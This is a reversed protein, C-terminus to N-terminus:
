ATGWTAYLNRVISEDNVKILIKAKNTKRLVLIIETSLALFLVFGKSILNM